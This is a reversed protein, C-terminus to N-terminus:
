LLHGLLARVPNWRCSIDALASLSEAQSRAGGLAYIPLPNM